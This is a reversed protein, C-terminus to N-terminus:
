SRDYLLYNRIVYLLAFLNFIIIICPGLLRKRIEKNRVELVLVSEIPNEPNVFCATKQGASYPQRVRRHERRAKVIKEKEKGGITKNKEVTNYRDSTYQRGDYEYEYSIVWFFNPPNSTHDTDIQVEKILCPVQVWNLVRNSDKIIKSLVIYFWICGSAVIVSFIIIDRRHRRRDLEKQEEM